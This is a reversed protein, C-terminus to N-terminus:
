CIYTYRLDDRALSRNNAALACTGMASGKALAAATFERDTFPLREAKAQEVTLPGAAIAEANRERALRVMEASHDIAKEGGSCARVGPVCRLRSWPM